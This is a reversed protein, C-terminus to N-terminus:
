KAPLLIYLILGAAVSIIVGSVIKWFKEIRKDILTIMKKELKDESTRLMTSVLNTIGRRQAEQLPLTSIFETLDYKMEKSFGKEENEDSM